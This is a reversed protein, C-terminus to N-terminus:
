RNDHQFKQDGLKLLLTSSLSLSSLEIKISAKTPVRVTRINIIGYKDGKEIKAIVPGAGFMKIESSTKATRMEFVVNGTQFLKNEDLSTAMGNKKAKAFPSFCYKNYEEFKNTWELLTDLEIGKQWPKM